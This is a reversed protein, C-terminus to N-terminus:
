RAHSDLLRGIRPAAEIVNRRAAGRIKRYAGRFAGTSGEMRRDTISLLADAVEEARISFLAEHSQDAQKAELVPGLARAFAPFLRELANRPFGGQLGSALRFAGKIALGSVGGKAEVEEELLRAADDLFGERDVSQFIPPLPEQNEEETAQQM